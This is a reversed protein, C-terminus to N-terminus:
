SRFRRSERCPGPPSVPRGTAVRLQLIRQRGSAPVDLVAFILVPKFAVGLLQQKGELATTQDMKRHVGLQHEHGGPQLALVGLKEGEIQAVVTAGAVRRNLALRVAYRQRRTSTRSLRISMRARKMWRSTTSCVTAVSFPILRWGCPFWSRGANDAAPRPAPRSRAHVDVASPMVIQNLMRCPGALRIRNGPQSM